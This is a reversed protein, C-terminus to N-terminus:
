QLIIFGLSAIITKKEVTEQWTKNLQRRSDGRISATTCSPTLSGSLFSAHHQSLLLHPNFPSDHLTCMWSVQTIYRSHFHPSYRPFWAKQWSFTSAKYSEVALALWTYGTNNNKKTKNKLPFYTIACM